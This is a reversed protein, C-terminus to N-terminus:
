VVNNDEKPYPRRIPLTSQAKQNKKFLKRYHKWRPCATSCGANEYIDPRAARAKCMSETMMPYPQIKYCRFYREIEQDQDPPQWGFFRAMAERTAQDREKQTM